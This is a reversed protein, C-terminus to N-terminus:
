KTINSETIMNSGTHNNLSQTNPLINNIFYIRDCKPDEQLFVSIIENQYCNSIRVDQCNNLKVYPIDRFSTQVTIRDYELQRTDKVEFPVGEGVELRIDHFSIDSANELLVGKGSQIQM